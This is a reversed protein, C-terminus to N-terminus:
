NLNIILLMDNGLGEGSQDGKHKALKITLSDNVWDIHQLMINGVSNSRGILNWCTVLFLRLFMLVEWTFNQRSPTFKALFLSIKHYGNFSLPAKGETIPMIGQSKKTAIISKYGTIFDDLWSNVGEDLIKRFMKYLHKLASKYGQMCAVSMTRVEEAFITAEEVAIDDDVDEEEDEDGNNKRNKKPIDTNTSLWSFLREIIFRPLPLIVDGQPNILRDVEPQKALFEKMIRIKGLYNAKSKDCVRKGIVNDAVAQFINDNDNGQRGRERTGVRPVPVEAVPTVAAAM